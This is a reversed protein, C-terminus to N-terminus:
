RRLLQQMAQDLAGVTMGLKAAAERQGRTIVTNRATQWERHSAYDYRQVKALPASVQARYVDSIRQEARTKKRPVRSFGGQIISPQVMDRGAPMVEVGTGVRKGGVFAHRISVIDRRGAGGGGLAERFREPLPKDGKRFTWTKFVQDKGGAKFTQETLIMLPQHLSGYHVRSAMVDEGQGKRLTYVWRGGKGDPKSVSVQKFFTDVSLKGLRAMRKLQRQELRTVRVKRPKGQATWWATQAAGLARDRGRRAGAPAALASGVLAVTLWAVTLLALSRRRSM